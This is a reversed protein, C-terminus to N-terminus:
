GRRGIMNQERETLNAGMFAKSIENMENGHNTASRSVREYVSHTPPKQVGAEHSDLSKAPEAPEGISLVSNLDSLGLADAAMKFLAQIDLTVGQAMCMEAFPQYLMQIVQVISQYKEQPTKPSMSYPVIELEYDFLDGMKSRENFSVEIEVTRGIRKVLPLDIYPDTWLWWALSKMVEGAFENLSRAMSEFRTGSNQNLIADQTATSGMPALGGSVDLNGAMRSFIPDLTTAFAALVQDPGGYIVEQVDKLSDTRIVEGDGANRVREADAESGGTFTTIKKERRAQNFIKRWLENIVVHLEVWLAAPALPLINDPVDNFSLICYPGSRPGSWDQIKLINDLTEDLTVIVNEFPLWIEWLIYRRRYRSLDKNGGTSIDSTRGSGDYHGTSADNVRNANKYIGAKAANDFAEADVMFRNGIFQCHKWDRATTDFVFDDMSVREVFPQGGDVSFGRMRQDTENIGIKVVGMGFMADKLACRITDGIRLGDGVYDLALRLLEASPRLRAWKTTVSARPRNAALKHMYIGVALEMMNVPTEARRDNGAYEKGSYESVFAERQERFKKLDNNASNVADRLRGVDIKKEDSAM